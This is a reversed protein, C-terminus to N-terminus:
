RQVCVTGCSGGKIIMRWIRRAAVRDSSVREDSLACDGEGDGAAFATADGVGDAAGAAEVDCTELPLMRM